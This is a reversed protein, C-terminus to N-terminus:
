ERPYLSRVNVEQVQCIPKAPRELTIFEDVEATLAASIHLADIPTMDYKSALDVAHDTLEPSAPVTAAAELISAM